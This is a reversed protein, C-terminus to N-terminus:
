KERVVSISVPLKVIQPPKRAQKVDLAFMVAAREALNLDENWEYALKGEKEVRVMSGFMTGNEDAYVMWQNGIRLIHANILAGDRRTLPANILAVEDGFKIEESILSKLRSFAEEESANGSQIDRSLSKARELRTEREWPLTSEIQKELETSAKAMAERLAKRKAKVNDIRTKAKAEENREQQLEGAIKKIKANLSDIESIRRLKDNKYREELTKYRSEDARLLSDTEKIQLSLKNIESNLKEKQLELDRIDSDVDAFALGVLALCAMVVKLSIRSKM